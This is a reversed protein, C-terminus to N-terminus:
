RPVTRAHAGRKVEGHTVQPGTVGRRAAGSGGGTHVRVDDEVPREVVRITVRDGSFQLGADADAFADLGREAAAVLGGDAVADADVVLWRGPLRLRGSAAEVVLGQEGGGEEAQGPPHGVVVPAAPALHKLCHERGADAVLGPHPFGDEDFGYRFRLNRFRRGLQRWLLGARERLKAIRVARDLLPPETAFGADAGANDLRQDVLAEGAPVDLADLPSVSEVVAADTGALRHDQILILFPGPLRDALCDTGPTIVREQQVPHGPGALRLDVQPRDLLDDPSPFLCKDQDRLDRERRLRDLAEAAPATGHRDH